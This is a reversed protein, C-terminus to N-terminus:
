FDRHSKGTKAREKRLWGSCVRIQLFDSFHWTCHYGTVLLLGSQINKSKTSSLNWFWTDLAMQSLEPHRPCEKPSVFM